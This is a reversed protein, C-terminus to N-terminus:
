EGGRRGPGKEVTRDTNTYKILKFPERKSSADTRGSPTQTRPKTNHKIPLSVRCYVCLAGLSLARSWLEETHSWNLDRENNRRRLVRFGIRFFLFAFFFCLLGVGSSLINARIDDDDDDDDCGILRKFLAAASLYMIINALKHFGGLNVAFSYLCIYITTQKDCSQFWEACSKTKFSVLLLRYDQHLFDTWPSVFFSPFFLCKFLLELIQDLSGLKLTRKRTKSSVPVTWM